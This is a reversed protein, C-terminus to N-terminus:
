KKLNNLYLNEPKCYDPMGLAHRLKKACERCLFFNGRNTITMYMRDGIEFPKKCKICHTERDGISMRFKKRTEMFQNFDFTVGDEPSVQEVEYTTKVITSFTVKKAM